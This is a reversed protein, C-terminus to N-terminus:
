AAHDYRVLQEYKSLIPITNNQKYGNYMPPQKGDNDVEMFLVQAVRTGIPIAIPYNRYNYMEMTFYGDFFYDGLGACLHTCLGIRAFSSRTELMQTYYKGNLPNNCNFRENVVSLIFEKPQIIIEKEEFHLEPEKNDFRYIVNAISVDVSNPGIHLSETADYEWIHDNFANEIKPGALISM